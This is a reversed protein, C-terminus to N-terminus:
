RSLGLVMIEIKSTKGKDRLLQTYTDKGGYHVLNNAAIHMVLRLEQCMGNVFWHLLKVELSMM